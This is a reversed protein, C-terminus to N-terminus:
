SRLALAWYSLGWGAVPGARGPWMGLPDQIQTGMDQDTQETQRMGGM